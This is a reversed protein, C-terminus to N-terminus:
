ESTHGTESVSTLKASADQATITPKLTGNVGDILFFASERLTFIL